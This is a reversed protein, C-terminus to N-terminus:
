PAQHASKRLAPLRALFNPYAHYVLGTDAGYAEKAALLLMERHCRFGTECQCVLYVHKERALATLRALHSFAEAGLNFRDEYRSVTFAREHGVKDRAEQWQQFLEKDPALASLYEDRYRAALNRPHFCMCIAIHASARTIAGTRLQRVSAQRLM